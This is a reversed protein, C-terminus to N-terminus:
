FFFFKKYENLKPFNKRFLFTSYLEEVDTAFLALSKKKM